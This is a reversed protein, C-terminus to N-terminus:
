RAVLVLADDNDRGFHELLHEAIVVPHRRLLALEESIDVHTSLGDTFVAVVDHARLEEREVRWRRPRSRKEGLVGASTSICRCERPRYVHTRIDGLAAQELEHKEHHIRAAAMVVGRTGRLAEDVAALISAPEDSARERFCSSATAAVDRALIGHGLGDIVGLTLTGDARVFAGDDGSENEGPCARGLIAVESRYPPPAEFRRAWVCSGQGIRIDFDLEDSAERVAALGQGLGRSSGTIGNLARGPESLGDGRDAAVLEIGRVGARVIERAAFRGAKAHLLQNRALETAATASTEVEKVPLGMERGLERVRERVLTLSADDLVPIAEADRLWASVPGAEV